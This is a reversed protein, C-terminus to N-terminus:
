TCILCQKFFCVNWFLRYNPSPGKYSNLIQLSGVGRVQKILVPGHLKFVKSPAKLLDFEDKVAKNENCQVDLQTRSNILKQIDKQLKQFVELEKQLQEQINNGSM